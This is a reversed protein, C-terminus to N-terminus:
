ILPALDGLVAWKAFIGFQDKFFACRVPPWSFLLHGNGARRICSPTMKTSPLVISSSLPLSSAKGYLQRFFRFGGRISRHPGNTLFDTSSCVIYPRLSCLNTRPLMWILAPVGRPAYVTSLIISQWEEFAEVLARFLFFCPPAGGGRDRWWLWAYLANIRRGLLFMPTRCFSSPGWGWCNKSM